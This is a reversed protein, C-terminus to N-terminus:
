GWPAVPMAIAQAQGALGQKQRRLRGESQAKRLASLKEVRRQLNLIGQRLEDDGNRTIM